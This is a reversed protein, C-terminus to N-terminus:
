KNAFKGSVILRRDSEDEADFNYYVKKDGVIRCIYNDSEPDLTLNSFQELIQQDTDTDEFARVLLTFTGYKYRPNTSKQLNAISIKYRTNAFAGDDLSEVQFLDHETTGFPQSIIHPTKPTQFRTDFRGFANLFPLSTDGSNVSVNASGSAIVIDGSGTGVTAVEADVAFDAYVLHKEAQFREPDKNLIKGFYNDSTPDLSATLIRIGSQGESSAFTSGASSSIVIKFEKSSSNATAADDVTTSWSENHSLVQLRAGSAVFIMARVLMAESSSGTTFLSDNNTFGAQGYAESGTVVHRAVLFQVAGHAGQHASSDPSLSASIKFGANNVVGKTRTNDIHASTTNSGAGLVRVFTLANRNELHKQVAYTGVFRPNLDGFKTKFDAFSGVSKPVFAPGREAMGVIGTPTGLPAQVEQSLDIERDFFGPFKYTNNAM